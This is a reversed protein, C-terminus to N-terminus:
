SSTIENKHLYYSNPTITITSGPALGRIVHFVRQYLTAGTTRKKSSRHCIPGTHGSTFGIHVVTISICRKSYTTHISPLTCGCITSITDSLYLLPTIASYYCVCYCMFVCNHIRRLLYIIYLLLQIMKIQTM